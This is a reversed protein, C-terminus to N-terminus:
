REMPTWYVEIGRIWSFFGLLSAINMAVFHYVSTILGGRWGIWNLLFGVIAILIGIGISFATITYIVSVNLLILSTIILLGWLFPSIWRLLKWSGFLFMVHFGSKVALRGLRSISSWNFASIRIRHSFEKGISTTSEETARADKAFCVRHGQALVEMLVTMDEQLPHSGLSRYLKKRLSYFGGYGGLVLGFKGMLERISSELRRYQTEGSLNNGALPPKMEVNGCVAGVKPDFYPDVIRSLADPEFMTNADTVVVIEGVAQPILVDDIGNKGHRSPMEVLEVGQGRYGRVIEATRDTSVDSAIVINLLDKPYDQALLNEIKDTIVKEENYAPVLVTLSPPKVPLEPKLCRSPRIATIIRLYLNIGIYTHFISLLAIWFVIAVGILIPSNLEFLTM